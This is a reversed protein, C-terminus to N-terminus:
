KVLLTTLRTGSRTLRVGLVVQWGSYAWLGSYLAIAYAGPSTSSGTFIDTRLSSSALGRAAQVIGMIAVAVLALIQSSLLQPSRGRVKFSTLVLQARVFLKPNVAHMACIALMSLVAVLKIVAQPIAQASQESSASFATHYLVRCTYEGFVTAIIAASSSQTAVITTWSYLAAILPGFSHNLYAQPGGDLPIAAGLEAFSSAGTWALVGSGIWVLLSAGVSGTDSVIVGPSSFIGSGVQLGVVLAVGSWLTLTKDDTVHPRADETLPIALHQLGHSFDEFSFRSFTNARPRFPRNAQHDADGNLLATEHDDEHVILDDDEDDAAGTPQQMTEALELEEVTRKSSSAVPASM